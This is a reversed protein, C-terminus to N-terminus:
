EDTVTTPTTRESDTHPILGGVLRNVGVIGIRQHARGGVHLHEGTNRCQTDKSGIVAKAAAHASAALDASARKMAISTETETEVGLEIGVGQHTQRIHETGSTYLIYLAVHDGINGDWLRHLMFFM